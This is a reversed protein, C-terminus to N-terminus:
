HRLLRRANESINPDWDRSALRLVATRRASWAPYKWWALSTDVVIRRVSADPESRYWEEVTKGTHREDLAMIVQFLSREPHVFVRFRADPAQKSATRAALLVALVRRALRARQDEAVLKAVHVGRKHASSQWIGQQRALVLALLEFRPPCVDSELTTRALALVQERAEEGGYVHPSGAMQNLCLALLVARQEPPHRKALYPLCVDVRIERGELVMEAFANLAVRRIEARDSDLFRLLGIAFKARDQPPTRSPRRFTKLVNRAEEEAEKDSVQVRKLQAAELPIGAVLFSAFTVVIRTRWIMM